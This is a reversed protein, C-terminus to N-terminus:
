FAHHDAPLPIEGGFAQFFMNLDGAPTHHEPPPDNITTGDKLSAWYVGVGEGHPPLTADDDGAWRLEQQNAYVKLENAELRGNLYDEIRAALESKMEQISYEM